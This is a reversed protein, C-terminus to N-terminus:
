KEEYVNVLYDRNTGGLKVNYGRKKLMSILMAINEVEVISFEGMKMLHEIANDLMEQLTVYEICYEMTATLSRHEKEALDELMKLYKPQFKYSKPIRKLSEPKKNM